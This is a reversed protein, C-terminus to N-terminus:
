PRCNVVNQFLLPSDYYSQKVDCPAGIAAKKRKMHKTGLVVKETRVTDNSRHMLGLIKNSYIKLVSM